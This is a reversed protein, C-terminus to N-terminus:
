SSFEPRLYLGSTIDAAQQLLAWGTSAVVCSDVLVEAKQLSFISNMVPIYQSPFDTTASFVFIRPVTKRLKESKLRNCVCAAMAFASSLQPVEADVQGSGNASGERRAEIKQALAVVASHLKQDFSDMELVGKVAASSPEHTPSKYLYESGHPHSGIVVVSNAGNLLFFARMFTLLSEAAHVQAM